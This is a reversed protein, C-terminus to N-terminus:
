CRPGVEGSAPPRRIVSIMAITWVAFVALMALRSTTLFSPLHLTAVMMLALAMTRWSPTRIFLRLCALLLFVLLLDDYARHYFSVRTAFGVLALVLLPDRRGEILGLALLLGAFGAVACILSALQPPVGLTSVLTILSYGLKTFRMGGVPYTAALLDLPSHGSWLSVAATSAAVVLAAVALATWRRERVFVAAMMVANTPKFLAIGFLLGSTLTRGRSLALTSGLMLALLILGYQGMKATTANAAIALVGSMCAFGALRSSAAGVDFAFRLVVGLAALSWAGHWLQNLRFDAFPSLLWLVPFANPPYVTNAPSPIGEAALITTRPYHHQELLRLEAHRQALDGSFTQGDPLPSVVLLTIRLCAVVLNLATFLFLLRAETAPAFTM